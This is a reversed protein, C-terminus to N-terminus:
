LLADLPVGSVDHIAGRNVGVNLILGDEPKPGDFRDLHLNEIEGRDVDLDAGRVSLLVVSLILGDEPKPGDFRDPNRLLDNSV